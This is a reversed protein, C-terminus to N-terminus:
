VDDEGGYRATRVNATIAHALMREMECQRATVKGVEASAAPTMKQYTV